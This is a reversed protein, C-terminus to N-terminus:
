QKWKTAKSWPVMNEGLELTERAEKRAREWKNRLDSDSLSRGSLESNQLSQSGQKRRLSKDMNKIDSSSLVRDQLDAEHKNSWGLNEEFKQAKLHVDKQGLSQIREEGEGAKMSDHEPTTNENEHSKFVCAEQETSGGDQKDVDKENLSSQGMDDGNRVKRSSCESSDERERAGDVGRSTQYAKKVMLKYGYVSFGDRRLGKQM